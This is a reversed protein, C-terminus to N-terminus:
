IEVGALVEAWDGVAQALVTNANPSKEQSSASKRSRMKESTALLGIVGGGRSEDSIM